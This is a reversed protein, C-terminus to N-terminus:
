ELPVVHHCNWNLIVQQCHSFKMYADVTLLENLQSQECTSFKTWERSSPPSHLDGAGHSGLVPWTNQPVTCPFKCCWDLVTLVSDPPIIGFLELPYLCHYRAQQIPRPSPSSPFFLFSFFLALSFSIHYINSFVSNFSIQEGWCVASVQQKSKLM